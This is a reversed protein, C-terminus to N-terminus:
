VRPVVLPAGDPAAIVTADIGFARRLNDPTIIESPPGIALLTGDAILAIRDCSRATLSLDHSVVLASRGAAAFERVLALVAIRHRLDLHATPEDLLLIGADQALARAILVLQREGGSLELISRDALPLVGVRAMSERAREIDAPSEYGFAGLHPSRGMLVVESARFPFTVQVDQPVVAIECALERRSLTVIDRGGVRVCGASPAIVRSAARLLTTKGAGNGGAVGLVEGPALELSVDRLIRREGLVVELGEFALAPPRANM